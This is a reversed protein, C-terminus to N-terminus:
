TIEDKVMKVLLDRYMKVWEGNLKITKRRKGDVFVTFSISTDKNFRAKVALTKM